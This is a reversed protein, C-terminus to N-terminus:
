PCVAGLILTRELTAATRVGGSLSQRSPSLGLRSQRGTFCTGDRAQGRWWQVDTKTDKKCVRWDELTRGRAREEQCLLVVTLVSEMWFLTDSSPAQFGLVTTHGERFGQEPRPSHSVTLVTLSPGIRQFARMSQPWHSPMQLQFVWTWIEAEDGFCTAM